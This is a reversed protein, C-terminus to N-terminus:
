RGANPYTQLSPFSTLAPYLGEVPPAPIADQRLGLRDRESYTRGNFLEREEEYTLLDYKGQVDDHLLDDEANFSITGPNITANRIRYYRASHRDWVRAGNVNGFLQNAFDGTSAERYRQQIDDYTFATNSADVAGYTKGANSEQDLSYKPYTASGSDGLKNVATVSGSLEMKEGAFWRAAKIGATWAENATSLFPNDITIGVDTGTLHPKVCTRVRILEKRFLVGTGVVRLTSYRNGTFDSGLALSFTSIYEGKSNAIGTAGTMTVTLSKTDQNLAVSVRGGYDEWQTPQIPLGDDGVVTYVSSSDHLQSVFTQMVPEQISSLSSSLEVIREVTEGAGVTIVEVEPLWGGPPYVLENEIARNNYQYVEVARALSTGGYSRGREVDRHRVAERSRLPRLLIVGSVLSVECDQAAALQKLHYWLEGFWGQLVVPRDAIQDDVTVDTDQLGLSAYYLFAGRLTGKFPEAQVDYINLKGLRTQCVLSVRGNDTERVADVVGLTVGKRSDSLSVEKGELLFPYEVNVIDFSITGVSGTSDDSSTPTSDEQVSYVVAEYPDGGVTIRVGM